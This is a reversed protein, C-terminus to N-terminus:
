LDTDFTTYLSQLFLYFETFKNAVTSQDNQLFLKIISIIM